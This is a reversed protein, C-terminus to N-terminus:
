GLDLDLDLLGRVHAEVCRGLAPLNYGGDLM